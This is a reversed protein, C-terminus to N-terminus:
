LMGSPRLEKMRWDVRSELNQRSPLSSSFFTLLMESQIRATAAGGYPCPHCDAVGAVFRPHCQWGVFKLRCRNRFHYLWAARQVSLLYLTCIPPGLCLWTVRCTCVPPGRCLWVASDPPGRYTLLGLWSARLVSLLGEISTKKGCSAKKGAGPPATLSPLLCGLGGLTQAAPNENWGAVSGSSEWHMLRIRADRATPRSSTGSCATRSHKGTM